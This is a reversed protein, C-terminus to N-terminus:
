PFCVSQFLGGHGPERTVMQMLQKAVPTGPLSYLVLLGGGVPLTRSFEYLSVARRDM